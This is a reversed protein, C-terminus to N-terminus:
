LMGGEAEQTYYSLRRKCDTLDKNLHDIEEMIDCIDTARDFMDHFIQIGFWAYLKVCREKTINPYFIYVKEIINYDDPKITVNTQMEAALMNEFECRMM